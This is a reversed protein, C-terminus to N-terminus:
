RTRLPVVLEKLGRERESSGQGRRIISRGRGGEEQKEKEKDEEDEVVRSRGWAGGGWGGSSRWIRPQNM